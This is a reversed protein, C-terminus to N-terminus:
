ELFADMVVTRLGVNNLVLLSQLVDDDCVYPMAGQSQNENPDVLGEWVVEGNGVQAKTMPVPYQGM